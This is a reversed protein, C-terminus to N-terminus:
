FTDFVSFLVTIGLGMAEIEDEAVEVESKRTREAYIRSSKRKPGCKEKVM